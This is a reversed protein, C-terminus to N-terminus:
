RDARVLRAGAALANIKADAVPRPLYWMGCDSAPHLREPPVVRMAADLRRAIHDPTEVAETGLDLLGLVVHKDGCRRLLEPGHGPQEYEISMGAVPAESLRELLEPYAPSESKERFVLAYGYCVHVIVPVTVGAVLQTLADLGYARVAAVDFHFGPEDIQIVDAGAAELARLEGNLARALALALAEAEGYFHDVLNTALTLPGVVTAKISCCM